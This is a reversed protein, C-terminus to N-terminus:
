KILKNLWEEILKNNKEMDFLYNDIKLLEGIIKGNHNKFFEALIDVAGCFYTYSSDGLGFIAVKKGKLDLNKSNEMWLMFDQHPQGEKGEYNWSPSAFILFDYKELDNNSIENITKLDAYYGKEELKAKVFDSAMQTGGSYTAYVVLIKM